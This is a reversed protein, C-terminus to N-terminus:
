KKKRVDDVEDEKEKFKNPPLCGILPANAGGGPSPHPEPSNAERQQARTNRGVLSNYNWM